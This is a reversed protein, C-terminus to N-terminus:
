SAILKCCSGAEPVVPFLLASPPCKRSFSFYFGKCFVFFVLWTMNFLLVVWSLLLSFLSGPPNVQPPPRWYVVPHSTSQISTIFMNGGLSAASCHPSPSCRECCPSFDTPTVTELRLSRSLSTSPTHWGSSARSSRRSVARSLFSPSM